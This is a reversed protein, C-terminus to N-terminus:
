KEARPIDQAIEATAAAPKKGTKPSAQHIPTASLTAKFGSQISENNKQVKRRKKSGEGGGAGARKVRAKDLNQQEKKERAVVIKADPKELNKQAATLEPLKAGVPLPPTVLPKPGQEKPIPDGRSVVTGTWTPLKLFTDMDIVNM